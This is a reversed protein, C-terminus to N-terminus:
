PITYKTAEGVSGPQDMQYHIDFEYLIADAGYDDDAPTGSCSGGDIDRWIRFKCICSLGACLPDFSATEAYAHLEATDADDTVYVMPLTASGAFTEGVDKCEWDIAWCVDGGASTSKAWHVHPEINSGNLYSHPLQMIMFAEEDQNSAFLLTGDLGQDASNGAGVGVSLTAAPARLDEYYVNDYAFWNQGGLIFAILTILAYRM